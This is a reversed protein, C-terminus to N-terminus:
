LRKVELVLPHQRLVKMAQKLEAIGAILVVLKIETEGSSLGHSTLGVIHIKEVTLVSTLEKLLHTGSKALVLVDVAYNGGQHSGWNVELLRERHQDSLYKLNACDLRHISIGQSQTIYGMVADGPLPKCCRGVKTLLSDVGTIQRAVQSAKNKIATFIDFRSRPAVVPKASTKEQTERDKLLGQVRFWHQIVSRARHTKVYGLQPNMWDLSPQAVKATIIEVRQGTQLPTTLSIMKHNVKAGRCRHGVESHIHYAFDIATAGQPLDILDGQPTFVYIRDAFLDTSSPTSGVDLAVEKQWAMIQRLLAIKHEDPSPASVGEKYRWHSAAGLEAEQHMQRTRIQIEILQNFEDKVIMHISRYGNPKPQAIYDEFEDNLNFYAAQLVSLTTYCAEIDDVLIRLASYDYINDLSTNKRKTKQYVSYLHKVRGMVEAHHINNKVLLNTVDTIIRRMATERDSRKTALWRSIDLYAAPELYRFCWDEMEWKIEWVGIRNALPAHLNLTEKALQKQSAVDATKAERLVVLREALVLLVTRIDTVMGILMKRINEQQHSSFGSLQQLRSLSQLQVTDHILQSVGLGFQMSVAELALGDLKVVPYLLAAVVTETDLNLKLLADAIMIAHTSLEASVSDICQVAETLTQIDDASRLSQVNLLWAAASQTFAPLSVM